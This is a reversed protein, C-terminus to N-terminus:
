RLGGLALGVALGVVAYLLAGRWTRPDNRRVFDSLWDMPGRPPRPFFATGATM